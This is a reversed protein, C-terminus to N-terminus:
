EHWYLFLKKGQMDFETRIRILEAPTAIKQEEGNEKYYISEGAYAMEYAEDFSMEIANEPLEVKESVKKFIKCLQVGQLSLDYLYKLRDETKVLETIDERSKTQCEVVEGRKLIQLAEEFKVEKRM